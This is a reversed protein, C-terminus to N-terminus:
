TGIPKPYEGGADGTGYLIEYGRDTEARFGEDSAYRKDALRDSLESQSFPPEGRIVAEPDNPINQTQRISAEAFTAILRMGQASSGMGNYALSFQEETIKGSKRLGELFTRNTIELSALEDGIEAIQESKYTAQDKQVQEFSKTLFTKVISDFMEGNWGQEKAFETMSVLLPDDKTLQIDKHLTSNGDADFLTGNLYAESSELAQPNLNGNARKAADSELRIASKVAELGRVNAADKDWYKEPMWEPRGKTLDVTSLDDPPGMPSPDRMLSPSTDPPTGGADLENMLSPSVQPTGGGGAGDDNEFLIRFFNKM